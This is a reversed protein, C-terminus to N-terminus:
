QIRTSEVSLKQQPKLKGTSDPLFLNFNGTNVTRFFLILFVVVSHGGLFM